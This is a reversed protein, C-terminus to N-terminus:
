FRNVIGFHVKATKFDAPNGMQQGLAYNISFVGAKTEFTIGAGYGFPNDLWKSNQAKKVENEYYAGNFFLFLFTNQELLYRVELNYIGYASATISEEDFGRLSRMGGIRFLENEYLTESEIFAGNLGTKFVVRKGLPFYIDLRAKVNYKVTKIESSDPFETGIPKAIKNGARCDLFLNYGKSPNLLYNLKAKNYGIGYSVSRINGYNNLDNGENLIRNQESTIYGRLYDGHNLLYIIGLNSHIELFTTDKKYLSFGADIGFRSILFPYAFLAKLDQTGPSLSRWNMGITEGSGFSNLLKFRADGTIVLKGPADGGPIFGAMADFRSAKKNVLNLEIKTKEKFFIVRTPKTEKLFPMEKIRIGINAIAKESYSDGPKVGLYNHLYAEQIKVEGNVLVSDIVIRTNKDLNLKALVKQSGDEISSFRISDLSVAAFPHGNNECYDLIKEQIDKVTAISFTKGKMLKERYGISSLIEEEVNGPVLMAWLYKSGLIYYAYLQTSDKVMSDISAAIYGDDYLDLLFGQLARHRELASPFQQELKAKPLSSHSSDSSMPFISLNYASQGICPLAFLMFFGYLYAKPYMTLPKISHPM